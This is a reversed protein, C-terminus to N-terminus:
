DSKREIESFNKKVSFNIEIKSSAFFFDKKKKQKLIKNYNQEYYIRLLILAVKKM